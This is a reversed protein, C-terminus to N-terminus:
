RPVPGGGTLGRKVGKFEQEQRFWDEVERVRGCGKGDGSMGGLKSRAGDKELSVRVAFPVVTGVKGM